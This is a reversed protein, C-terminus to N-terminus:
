IWIMQHCAIRFNGILVICLQALVLKVVTLGLQIGPDLAVGEDLAWM